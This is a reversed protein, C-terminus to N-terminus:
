QALDELRAILDNFRAEESQLTRSLDNERNRAQQLQRDIRAQEGRYDRIRGEIKARDQPSTVRSQELLLDALRAEIDERQATSSAVQERAVVLQDDASKLRSQQASLYVGLAQSESQSRALEEVALRLQRVEATLAALSGDGELRPAEVPPDRDPQPEFSIAAPDDQFACAALMPLFSVCLFRLSRSPKPM